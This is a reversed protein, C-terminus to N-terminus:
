LRHQTELPRSPEQLPGLLSPRSVGGDFTLLTLLWMTSLVSPMAESIQNHSNTDRPETSNYAATRLIHVIGGIDAGTLGHGSPLLWQFRALSLKRTVLIDAHSCFWSGRSAVKEPAHPRGILPPPMGATEVVTGLWRPFLSSRFLSCFSIIDLGRMWLRVM